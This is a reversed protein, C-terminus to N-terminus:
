HYNLIIKDDKAVFFVTMRLSLTTSSRMCCVLDECGVTELIVIYVFSRLFSLM